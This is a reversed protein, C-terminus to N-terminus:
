SPPSAAKKETKESRNLGLRDRVRNATEPEVFTRWNPPAPTDRSIYGTLQFEVQAPYVFHMGQLAGQTWGTLAM